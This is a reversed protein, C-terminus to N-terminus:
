ELYNILLERMRRSPIYIQISKGERIASRWIWQMMESLAYKDQDININKCSFFTDYFPDVYRNVLYALVTKGKYLNTARSNCALFSEMSLRKGKIIKSDDKFCTWMREDAKSKTVNQFYNFLNKGIVNRMKPNDEFWSKSLASKYLHNRIDYYYDGIRNLKSDNLIKINNKALVKWENEHEISEGVDIRYEEPNDNIKTVYYKTYELEFFNYYYSQLQAEFMHTLILIESFIGERFVEIPFSWLLLSGNVYYILNRKSMNILRQYKSLQNDYNKWVISFDDGVEILQSDLLTDVDKKTIADKVESKLNCELLDFKEVTQFVEDLILVYNNIRLANILEDNINGFLAHTSVINRGEIVLNILHNLKTGAVKESPQIFDKGWCADLIRTVETLYPTIYIIKTDEDLENIYNIAYSTKGSGPPSDIVKIRNKM